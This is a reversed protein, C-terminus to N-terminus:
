DDEFPNRATYVDKKKNTKTARNIEEQSVISFAEQDDLDELFPNYSHSSSQVPTTSTSSKLQDLQKIDNLSKKKKLKVKKRVVLDDDSNKSNNTTIATPEINNEHEISVKQIEEVILNNEDNKNTM